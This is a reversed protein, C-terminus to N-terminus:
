AVIWAEAKAREEVSFVRVPCPMVFRFMRAATAVWSVDTVVAIREWARLHAIGMKMDDWMAGPSFGTFDGGLQYLLRLRDHKALGTEVAPMLVTEYDAASVHGSARIGVVNDPLNTLLEIM